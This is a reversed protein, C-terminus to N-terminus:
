VTLSFVDTGSYVLTVTSSAMACDAGPPTTTYTVYLIVPILMEFPFSLTSPLSENFYYTCHLMKFHLMYHSGHQDINAQANIRYDFAAITETLIQGKNVSNM